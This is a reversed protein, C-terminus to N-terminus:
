LLLDRKAQPLATTIQSSAIQFQFCLKARRYSFLLAGSPM